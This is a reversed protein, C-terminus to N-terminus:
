KKFGKVDADDKDCMYVKEEKVNMEQKSLVKGRNYFM